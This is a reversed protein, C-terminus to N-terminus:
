GTLGDHVTAAFPGFSTRFADAGGSRGLPDHIWISCAHGRRELGRVLNAITTHGGSGRRFGPVVVAVRLPGDAAADGGPELPVPGSRELEAWAAHETLVDEPTRQAAVLQTTLRRAPGSRLIRQAPTSRAVRGLRSM